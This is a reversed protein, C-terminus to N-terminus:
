AEVAPDYEHLSRGFTWAVAARIRESDSRFRNFYATESNGFKPPVRLLHAESTTTDRVILYTRYSCGGRSGYTAYESGWRFSGFQRYNALTILAASWDRLYQVREVTTREFLHNRGRKGSFSKDTQLQRLDRKLQEGIKGVQRVVSLVLGDAASSVEHYHKGQRLLDVLSKRGLRGNVTRSQLRILQEREPLAETPPKQTSSM